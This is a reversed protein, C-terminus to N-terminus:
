DFPLCLRSEKMKNVPVFIETGKKSKSEIQIYNEINAGAFITANVALQNM